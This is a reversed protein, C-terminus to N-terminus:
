NNSKLLKIAAMKAGIEASDRNDGSGVIIVDNEKPNLQTVLKNHLEPMSECLNEEEQPLELKNKSFILTTAGLAGSKIAADRQEMGSGIAQAANRVLVAINFAGVTLPSSPVDIGERLKSRLDSFLKKGEESFSIGSRSSQTVGENKLHKLLTRTTGEGLGMEKSLKIRGVTQYKDIMELAKVVHAENFAPAPGPAIKRTVREIIDFLKLPSDGVCLVM